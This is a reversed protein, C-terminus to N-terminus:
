TRGGRYKRVRSAGVRRGAPVPCEIGSRFGRDKAREDTGEKFLSYARVPTRTPYQVLLPVPSVGADAPTLFFGNFRGGRNSRNSESSLRASITASGSRRRIVVTIWM